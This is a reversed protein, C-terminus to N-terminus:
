LKGTNRIVSPNSVSLVSSLSNKETRETDETTLSDNQTSALLNCILLIALM